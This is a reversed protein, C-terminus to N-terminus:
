KRRLFFIESVSFAPLIKCFLNILRFLFKNYVYYKLQSIYLYYFSKYDNNLNM